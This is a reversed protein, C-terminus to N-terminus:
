FDYLLVMLFLFLGIVKPPLCFHCSHFLDTFDIRDGLFVEVPCLPHQIHQILEGPQFKSPKCLPDHDKIVRVARDGFFVCAAVIRNRNQHVRLVLRFARLPTRRFDGGRRQHHCTLFSTVM